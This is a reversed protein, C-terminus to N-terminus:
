VEAFTNRQICSLYNAGSNLCFGRAREYGHVVWTSGKPYSLGGKTVVDRTLVVEKGILAKREKAEAYRERGEESPKAKKTPTPASPAVVRNGALWEEAELLLPAWRLYMSRTSPDDFFQKFDGKRYASVNFVETKPVTLTVRAEKDNATRRMWAFTVDRKAVAVVRALKGPGPNGYPRHRAPRYSTKVRYDRDM